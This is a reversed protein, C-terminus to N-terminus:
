CCNCLYYYRERKKCSFDCEANDKGIAPALLQMARHVFLPRVLVHQPHLGGGQSLHGVLKSVLGDSCLHYDDSSSVLHRAIGQLIVEDWITLQLRFYLSQYLMFIVVEKCFSFVCYGSFLEM